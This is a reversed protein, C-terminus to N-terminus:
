KKVSINKNQNKIDSEVFYDKGELDPNSILQLIKKFSIGYAKDFFVQVYYHPVNYKKELVNSLKPLVIDRIYQYKRGIVTAIEEATYLANSWTPVSPPKPILFSVGVILLLCAAAALLTKWLTPKKKEALRQDMAVFRQVVDADINTVADLLDNETM